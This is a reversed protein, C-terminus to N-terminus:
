KKIIAVLNSGYIFSITGAGLYYRLEYTFTGVGPVDVWTSKISNDASNVSYKAVEHIRTAGRYLCLAVYSNTTGKAYDYEAELLVQDTASLTTVTISRLLTTAGAYVTTAESYVMENDCLSKWAATVTSYIYHCRLDTDYVMLGNAPAAISNRQLTTMRPTLFGSTTSVVDLMASADPTAGSNNVGVNQGFDMKPISLLLLIILTFKKM